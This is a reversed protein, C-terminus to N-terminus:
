QSHLPNDIPPGIEFDTFQVELGSRQPSCAMPGVWSSDEVPMNGLRMLQWCGHQDLHHVIVADSLRTLRIQQAGSIGPAGIVSWDSRGENTIVVSFNTLGDSFEIGAKLWNEADQRFMLGAQDYLTEYHAKFTLVATFDNEVPRGLFHGDDRRFGYLTDQWFDTKNGTTVNLAGNSWTWAPPECHWHAHQLEQELRSM